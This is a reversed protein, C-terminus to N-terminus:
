IYGSKNYEYATNIQIGLICLFIIHLNYLRDFILIRFVFLFQVDLERYYM